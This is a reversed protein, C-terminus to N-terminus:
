PSQLSLVFLIRPYATLPLLLECCRGQSPYSCVKDSQPHLVSDKAIVIMHRHLDWAELQLFSQRECSLYRHSQEGCSFSCRQLLLHHNSKSFKSGQCRLFCLSLRPGYLSSRLPLSGDRPSGGRSRLHHDSSWLTPSQWHQYLECKRQHGCM